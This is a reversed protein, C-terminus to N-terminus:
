PPARAPLAFWGTPDLSPPRRTARLLTYPWRGPPQGGLSTLLYLIFLLSGIIELQERKGATRAKLALPDPRTPLSFPQSLREQTAASILPWWAKAGTGFRAVWRFITGPVPSALKVNGWITSGSLGEPIQVQGIELAVSRYSTRPEAYSQVAAGITEVSYTQHPLTGEPLLRTTGGCSRCQVRYAVSQVRRGDLSFYRDAVSHYHLRAARGCKRCQKPRLDLIGAPNAM